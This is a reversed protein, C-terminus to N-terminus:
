VATVPSGPPPPVPMPRVMPVPGLQSISTVPNSSPTITLGSKLGGLSMTLDFHLIQGPLAEFSATGPASQNLAGAATNVATLTHAGPAILLSTFRPSRLQAVRVNDLLVDVGVLRGVFGSRSVFLLSSGSPPTQALAARQEAATSITEAATGSRSQLFYYTLAGIGMSGATREIGDMGLLTLLASSCFIVVFAIIGNRVNRSM